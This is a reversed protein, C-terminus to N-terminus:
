ADDLVGAGLPLRQAGVDVLAKRIPEAHREARREVAGGRLAPKGVVVVRAGTDGVREGVDRAEHGQLRRVARERIGTPQAVESSVRQLRGGEPRVVLSRSRFLTTYPFLTSRPPRRIM